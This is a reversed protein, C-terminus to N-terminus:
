AKSATLNEPPESKRYLVAVFGVRQVVEGGIRAALECACRDVESRDATNVRIKLLESKGFARTVHEVVADSIADASIVVDAPLRNAKAALEKRKSM